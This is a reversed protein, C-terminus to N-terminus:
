IWVNLINKEAHDDYDRCGAGLLLIVGCDLHWCLSNNSTQADRM